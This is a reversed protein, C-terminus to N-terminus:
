QSIGKGFHLLSKFQSRRHSAASPNGHLYNLGLILKIINCKLLREPVNRSAEKQDLLLGTKIQKHNYSYNKESISSGSIQALIMMKREKEKACDCKV